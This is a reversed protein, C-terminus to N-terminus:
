ASGDEKRILNFLNYRNKSTKCSRYLIIAAELEKIRTDRFALEACIDAKSRLNEETMALVHESYHPELNRCDREEYKSM